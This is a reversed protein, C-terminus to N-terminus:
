KRLTIDTYFVQYGAITLPSNINMQSFEMTLADGEANQLNFTVPKYTVLQQDWYANDWTAQDWISNTVQTSIQVQQTTQYSSTLKYNTWWKLTLNNTTSERCWVVVKHFRKAEGPSGFDESRTRYSFAVAQNNESNDNDFQKWICGDNGSGYLIEAQSIIVKVQGYIPYTLSDYLCIADLIRGVLAQPVYPQAMTLRLDIKIALYNIGLSKSAIYWIIENQKQLYEGCCYLSNTLDIDGDPTFDYEINRSLYVPKGSGDWLYIGSYGVWYIFGKAFVISNQAICGIYDVFKLTVDLVQTIVGNSNTLQVFNNGTFVWMENEKFICLYEDTASTTPTSFYIIGMAKIDGGSPITVQNASPWSEPKNVDSCYFTSGSAVVLRKKWVTMINYTNSPLVSNDLITSNTRPINLAVSSAVTGDDNVTTTSSSVTAILDGATFGNVGGAGSRYVLIQSYKTTDNSTLNFTLQVVHGSGNTVSVSIDGTANSIAGTSAKKYAIAYYYTGTGLNQTGAINNVATIGSTTPIPVGNATYNTGNYGNIVGSGQGGGAFWTTTSSSTTFQKFCVPQTSSFPTSGASVTDDTINTTAGSSQDVTQLKTGAARLLTKTSNSTTSYIGMGLTRTQTDPSANLLTHAKRKKIGGTAIYDYNYGAIAQESAVRFPSDTKNLGGLLSFFDAQIFQGNQHQAIPM